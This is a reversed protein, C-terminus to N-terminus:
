GRLCGCPAFEIKNTGISGSFMKFYKCLLDIDNNEQALDIAKQRLIFDIFRRPITCTDAIERVGAMSELLLLRKNYVAKLIYDSQCKDDPNPHVKVSIIIIDNSIDFNQTFLPDNQLDKYDYIKIKDTRIFIDNKTIDFTSIDSFLLRTYNSSYYYEGLSYTETIVTTDEQTREVWVEQSNKYYHGVIIEGDEEFFNDVSNVTIKKMNDISPNNDIVPVNIISIGGSANTPNVFTNQNYLKIDEIYINRSFDADDIEVKLNLIPSANYEGDLGWEIDATIIDRNM